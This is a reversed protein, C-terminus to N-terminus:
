VKGEKRMRLFPFFSYQMSLENFFLFFLAIFIYTYQCIVLAPSIAVCKLCLADHVNFFCPSPTM